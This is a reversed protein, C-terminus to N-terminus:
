DIELVLKLVDEEPIRNEEALERCYYNGTPEELQYSARHKDPVFNFNLYNHSPVGSYFMDIAAQYGRLDIRGLYDEYSGNSYVSFQYPAIFQYYISYGANEGFANSVDRVYPESHTRNDITSAVRYAEDYCNPDGCSEAVCGACVADLEEYTYGEREMIAQMKEEYTLEKVEAKEEVVEVKEQEEQLSSSAIEVNNKKITKSAYALVSEEIKSQGVKFGDYVSICEYSVDDNADSQKVNKEFDKIASSITIFAMAFCLYRQFKLKKKYKGIEILNM